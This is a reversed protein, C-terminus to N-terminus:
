LRDRLCELGAALRRLLSEATTDLGARGRVRACLGVIDRQRSLDAVRLASSVVAESPDIANEQLADKGVVDTVRGIEDCAFSPYEASERLWLEVLLLDPAQGSANLQQIADFVARPLAFVFDNVGCLTDLTQAKHPWMLVYASVRCEDPWSQLEPWHARRTFAALGDDGIAQYEAHSISRRASYGMGLLGM